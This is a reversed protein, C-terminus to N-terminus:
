PKVCLCRANRLRCRSQWRGMKALSWECALWRLCPKQPYLQHEAQQNQRISCSAALPHLKRQHYSCVSSGISRSSALTPM